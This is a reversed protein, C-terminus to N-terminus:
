SVIDPFAEDRHPENVTPVLKAWEAYEGSTAEAHLARLAKLPTDSLDIRLSLPAADRNLVLLAASKQGRSDGGAKAAEDLAALLREDMSGETAVFTALAADLVAESSLLNGTVIVHPAQRSGAVEISKAGTFSATSGDPALAALQRQDRGEDATTVTKVAIEASDGLRMCDLVDEGWLTSPLSGQSASLGSEINGRLVWGGVCLSGTMAASGYTGTKEDYALISITM